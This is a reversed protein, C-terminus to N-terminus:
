PRAPSIDTPRISSTAAAKAPTAARTSSLSGKAKHSAYMGPAMSVMAMTAKLPPSFTTNM